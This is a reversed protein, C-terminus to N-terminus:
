ISIFINDLNQIKIFALKFIKLDNNPPYNNIHYIIIIYNIYNYSLKVSFDKPSRSNFLNEIM